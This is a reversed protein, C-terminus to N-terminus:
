KSLIDATPMKHTAPVMPATAAACYTAVPAQWTFSHCERVDFRWTKSYMIPMAVKSSTINREPRKCAKEACFLDPQPM